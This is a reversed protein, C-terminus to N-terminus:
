NVSYRYYLGWAKKLWHGIVPLPIVMDKNGKRYVIAAGNGTDMICLINVHSIYDKRKNKGKIEMDINHAAIKGKVVALHGQKARWEPGEIASIDGIAYINKREHVKCTGDIKIFGAENVPLSSDTIYKPGLSAPIFLTLDSLLKSDDEFVVGDKEFFKIKKGTIKEVGNNALMKQLLKYGKPGMRKGPEAMPAFFSFKVAKGTKRKKIEHIMNFMLEFAPGGRVASQDKPNGGFGIAINGGSKVIENFRDRIKISQEPSGCISLTNEIGAHPIKWAGTAIILYDYVINHSIFKAINSEEDIGIFEDIKFKFGHKKSLKKLDITAKKFPLKGTPIWISVPYVFMYPRNTVLTVNHKKKRLQIAAELGAFGGGVILIHKKSQTKM